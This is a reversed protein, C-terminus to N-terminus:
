GWAIFSSPIAYAFASSGTNLTLANAGSGEFDTEAAPYLTTGGAVQYLGTTNSPDVGGAWLGNVGLFINGATCDIACMVVDGLAVSAVLFGQTGGAYAYWSGGNGVIGFSNFGGDGGIYVNANTIPFSSTVVGGSVFAAFSNPLAVLKIEFYFKGSNRGLTSRSAGSQGNTTGTLTTNNNSLVVNPGTKTPDFASSLKNIGGTLKGAAALTAGIPDNHRQSVTGTLASAGAFAAGINRSKLDLVPSIWSGGGPWTVAATMQAITNATLSSNGAAIASATMSQITRGTLAGAGAWAAIGQKLNSPLISSTTTFGGAGTLTAKLSVSVLGLSSSVNGLASCTIPLLQQVLGLRTLNAALAGAGGAAASLSYTTSLGAALAGAGLLRANATPLFRATQNILDIQAQLSIVTAQLVAVQAALPALVTSPDYTLNGAADFSLAGALPIRGVPGLGPAARGALGPGVMEMKIGDNGWNTTVAEMIGDDLHAFLYARPFMPYPDTALIGEGNFQAKLIFTRPLGRHSM